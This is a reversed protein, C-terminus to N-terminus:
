VKEMVKKEHIHIEDSLLLTHMQLTLNWGASVSITKMSKIFDTTTKMSRETNLKMKGSDSINIAEINDECKMEAKTRTKMSFLWQNKRIKRWEEESDM